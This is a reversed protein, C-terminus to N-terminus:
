YNRILESMYAEHLNDLIKIYSQIDNQIKILAKFRQIYQRPYGKMVLVEKILDRRHILMDIARRYTKIEFVIDNFSRSNHSDYGGDVEFYEAVTAPQQYKM